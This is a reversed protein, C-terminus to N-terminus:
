RWAGSGAAGVRKSASAAIRGTVLAVRRGDGVRSRTRNRPSVAGRTFWFAVAVLAGQLPLGISLAALPTNPCLQPNMAMHINVPLVAILLAILGQQWAHDGPVMM